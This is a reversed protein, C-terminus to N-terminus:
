ITQSIAVNNIIDLEAQKKITSLHEIDTNYIDM